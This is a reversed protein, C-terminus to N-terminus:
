IEGLNDAKPITSGYNNERIRNLMNKFGNDVKIGGIGSIMTMNTLVQRLEKHNDVYEQHESLSLEITHEEGTEINEFTYFPM